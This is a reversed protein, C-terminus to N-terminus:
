PKVQINGGGKVVDGFAYSGMPFTDCSIDTGPHSPVPVDDEREADSALWTLGIGTDLTLEADSPVWGSEMSRYLGWTYRDVPNKGGEGGDEVAFVVQRGILEELTADVITGSMVARNGDIKLCDFEVTITLNGLSGGPAANGTGDVDQDALVEAGSFVMHGSVSGNNHIRADFEITKTSNGVTFQFSGNASPGSNQAALPLALAMLIVASKM